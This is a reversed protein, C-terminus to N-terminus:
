RKSNRQTDQSPAVPVDTKGTRSSRRETTYAAMEEVTCWRVGPLEATAPEVRFTVPGVTLYEGLPCLATRIRRSGVFTGNLSELDKVVISGENATLECHRRSVLPHNVTVTAEPGRGIVAPLTIRCAPPRFHAGVAVLVIEM